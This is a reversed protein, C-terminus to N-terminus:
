FLFYYIGGQMSRWWDENEKPNLKMELRADWNGWRYAVGGYVWERNLTFGLGINKFGEPKSYKQIAKYTDEDLVAVGKVKVGPTLSWTMIKWVGLEDEFLESGVDIPKFRFSISHTGEGTFYNGETRGAYYVIGREGEFMVVITSDTIEVIGEERLVEIEDVLVGIRSSLAVNKGQLLENESELQRVFVAYQVLSDAQVALSDKLAAENQTTKSHQYLLEQYQQYLGYSWWAGYALAVIVIVALVIQVTKM